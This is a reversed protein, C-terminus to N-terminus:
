KTKRVSISVLVCSYFHLYSRLYHLCQRLDHLCPHLDHLYPHLFTCVPTFWTLNIRFYISFNHACSVVLFVNIFSFCKRHVTEDKCLRTIVKVWRVRGYKRNLGSGLGEGITAMHGRMGHGYAWGPWMDVM